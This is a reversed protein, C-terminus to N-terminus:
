SFLSDCRAAINAEYYKQLLTEYNIQLERIYKRYVNYLRERGGLALRIEFSSSNMTYIVEKMDNVASERRDALTSFCLSKRNNYDDIASLRRHGVDSYGLYSDDMGETDIIAFINMLLSLASLIGSKTDNFMFTSSWLRSVIEHYPVQGEFHIYLDRYHGISLNFGLAIFFYLLTIIGGFIRLSLKTHWLCRMIFVTYIWAISVNLLSLVVAEIIGGIIGAHSGEAYFFGNMISEIIVILVLFAIRVRWKSVSVINPMRELHNNTRFMNYDRERGEVERYVEYLHDLDAQAQIKFDTLADVGASEVLIIQNMSLLGYNIRDNYLNISREYEEEAKRKKQEIESLIKNEVSDLSESDTAPQNNEGNKKAYKEIDLKKAIHEIDLSPFTQISSLVGSRSFKLKDILEKFNQAM